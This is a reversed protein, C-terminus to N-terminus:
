PKEKTEYAFEKFSMLADLMQDRTELEIYKELFLFGIFNFLILWNQYKLEEVHPTKGKSWTIM